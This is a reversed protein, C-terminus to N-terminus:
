NRNLRLLDIVEQDTTQKFDTYYQGVAQFDSPKMLCISEDVKTSLSNFTNPSSVPTALIIRKAKANKVVQIATQITAGTAIGDDILIVTKNKLQYQHNNNRYQETRRDLEQTENLIAIDIAQESVHEKKILEHNLNIIGHHSLAGMACEPCHPLGIKRIILVDLPCNLAQAIPAAVPIGGRALGLVVLDPQSELHELAGALQQGAQRRNLFTSM